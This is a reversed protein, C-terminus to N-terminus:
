KTASDCYGATQEEPPCMNNYSPSIPVLMLYGLYLGWITWLAIVSLMTYMGFRDDSKYWSVIGAIILLLLGGVPMFIMSEATYPLM